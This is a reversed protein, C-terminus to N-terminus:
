IRSDDGGVRQLLANYTPGENNRLSVFFDFIRHLDLNKDYRQSTIGSEPIGTFVLTFEWNHSKQVVPITMSVCTYQVYHSFPMSRATHPPFPPPPLMGILRVEVM